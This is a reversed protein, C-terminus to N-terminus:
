SALHECFDRAELVVVKLPQDTASVMKSLHYAASIGTIGSGIICIDADTTLPGTSGEAALPNANPTDIWFSRTPNVSPLNSVHTKSTIKDALIQHNAYVNVPVSLTAM